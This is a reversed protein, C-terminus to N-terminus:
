CVWVGEFDSGTVARRSVECPSDALVSLEVLSSIAKLGRLLSRLAAPECRNFLEQVPVVPLITQM